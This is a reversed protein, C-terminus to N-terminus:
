SYEGQNHEKNTLNRENSVKGLPKLGVNDDLSIKFSRSTWPGYINELTEETNLNTNM